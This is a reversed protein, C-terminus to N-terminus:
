KIRAILKIQRQWWDIFPKLIGRGRTQRSWNQDLREAYPYDAHIIRQRELVTSQRARGTDIPTLRRFEDVGRAPLGALARVQRQIRANLVANDVNVSVKIM